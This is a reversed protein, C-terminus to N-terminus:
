KVKKEDNDDDNEPLLNNPSLRYKVLQSFALILIIVSITIKMFELSVYMYFLLGLPVGLISGLIFKKLLAHNIDKKIKPMLVVANCLSLFNSIQIVDRSDIVMLLFPTAMIAFGFGIASQLTSAIFVIIAVITWEM